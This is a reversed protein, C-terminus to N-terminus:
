TGDDVTDMLQSGQMAYTDTSLMDVMKVRTTGNELTSSIGSVHAIAVVVGLAFVIQVAAFGAFLQARLSSTILRMQRGQASFPHNRNSDPKVECLRGLHALAQPLGPRASHASPARRKVVRGRPVRAASRRGGRSRPP